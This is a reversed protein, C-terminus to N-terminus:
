ALALSSTWCAYALKDGRRLLLTKQSLAESLFGHKNKGGRLMPQFPTTAPTIVPVHPRIGVGRTLPCLVCSKKLRTEQMGQM